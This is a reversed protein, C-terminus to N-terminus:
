PGEKDELALGQRASVPLFLRLRSPSARKGIGTLSARNAAMQRFMRRRSQAEVMDAITSLAGSVSLRPGGRKSGESDDVSGKQSREYFRHLFMPFYAPLLRGRKGIVKLRQRTGSTRRVQQTELLRALTKLDQNLSLQGLRKETKHVKADETSWYPNTTGELTPSAPDSYREVYLQSETHSEALCMLVFLCTISIVLRWM